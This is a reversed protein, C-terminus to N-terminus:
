TQMTHGWEHAATTVGEYDGNFNMLQYPHV